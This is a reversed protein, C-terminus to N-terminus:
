VTAGAASSEAGQGSAVVLRSGSGFGGGHGGGQVAQQAAGQEGQRQYEGLLHPQRMGGSMQGGV